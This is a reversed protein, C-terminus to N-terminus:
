FIYVNGGRDVNISLDGPAADDIELVEVFITNEEIGISQQISVDRDFPYIFLSLPVSAFSVTVEEGPDLEVNPGGSFGIGLDGSLSNTVVIDVAEAPDIRGVTNPLSSAPVSRRPLRTQAETLTAPLLFIGATALSILAFRFPSRM